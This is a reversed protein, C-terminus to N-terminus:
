RFNSGPRMDSGLSMTSANLCRWLADPLVSPMHENRWTQLSERRRKHAPGQKDGSASSKGHQKENSTSSPQTLVPTAASRSFHQPGPLLKCPRLVKLVDAVPALVWPQCHQLRIRQQLEVRQHVVCSQVGTATAKKKFRWAEPGRGFGEFHTNLADALIGDEGGHGRLGALRVVAAQVFADVEKPGGTAKQAADALVSAVCEALSESPLALLTARLYTRVMRNIKLCDIESRPTTMIYRLLKTSSVRKKVAEVKCDGHKKSCVVHGVRPLFNQDTAEVIDQSSAWFCLNAALPRGEEDRANSTAGDVRTKRLM